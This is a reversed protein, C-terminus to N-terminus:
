DEDAVKDAVMEKSKNIVREPPRQVPSTAVSLVVSPSSFATGSAAITTTTGTAAATSTTIFGDAPEAPSSLGPIPSLTESDAASGPLGAPM